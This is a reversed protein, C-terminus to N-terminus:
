VDEEVREFPRLVGLTRGLEEPDVQKAVIANRNLDVIYYDGLEHRFREGRISKLHEEDKTLRRNIRQILARMTVPVKDTGRLRAPM